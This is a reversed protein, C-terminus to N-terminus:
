KCQQLTKFLQNDLFPGLLTSSCGLTANSSPSVILCSFTFDFPCAISHLIFESCGKLKTGEEPVMVFNMTGSISPM